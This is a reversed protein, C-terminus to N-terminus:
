VSKPDKSTRSGQIFRIEGEHLECLGYNTGKDLDDGSPETIDTCDATVDDVSHPCRPAFVWASYPFVSPDNTVWDEVVRQPRLFSAVTFSYDKVNSDVVPTLPCGQHIEESTM